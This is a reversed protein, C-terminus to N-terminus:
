RDRPSESEDDLDGRWRAIAGRTISASVAKDQLLTRRMKPGIELISRYLRVAAAIERFSRDAALLRHFEDAEDRGERTLHPQASVFTSPAPLCRDQM